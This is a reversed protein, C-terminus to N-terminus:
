HGLPTAILLHAYIAANQPFLATEVCAYVTNM